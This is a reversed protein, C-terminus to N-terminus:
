AGCAAADRIGPPAQIRVEPICVDTGAAVLELDDPDGSTVVQLPDLDEVSVVAYQWTGACRPGDTVTAQTNADLVGEARLLALVDEGSPEGGCNIAFQEGFGGSPLGPAGTPPAIPFTPVPSATTAPPPIPTPPAPQAPPPGCGALLLAAAVLLPAPRSPSV